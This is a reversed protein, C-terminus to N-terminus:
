LMKIMEIVVCIKGIVICYKITYLDIVIELLFMVHDAKM